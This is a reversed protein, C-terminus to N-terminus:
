CPYCFSLVYTYFRYGYSDDKTGDSSLAVEEGDELSRVMLNYDKIYARWKGDPSTDRPPPRQGANRNGRLQAPRAVTVTNTIEALGPKEAGEFAAVTRDNIMALWVHGAFTHQERRTGAALIGYSLSDGDESLWFLEVEGATRNIFTLTTEAGASRSAHPAEDARFTTAQAAKADKRETVTCSSVDARWSKGGASFEIETASKWELNKLPLYDATVDSVGAKTLADALKARDFAPKREGKEAEVFIFEHSNSGTKVEYWFQTTNSLWHAEVRDRYVKNETLKRLNKAREYDAITGQAQLLPSCSFFLVLLLFGARVGPLPLAVEASCKTAYTAASPQAQRAAPSKRDAAACRM